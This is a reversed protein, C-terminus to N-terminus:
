TERYFNRVWAHSKLRDLLELGFAGGDAARVNAEVHAATRM